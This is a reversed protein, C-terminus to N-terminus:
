RPRACTFKKSVFHQFFSLKLRPDYYEIWNTTKGSVIKSRAVRAVWFSKWDPEEFQTIKTFRNFFYEEFGKRPCMPDVMKSWEAWELREEVVQSRRVVSFPPGNSEYVGGPYRENQFHNYNDTVYKNTPDLSLAARYIQEARDYQKFICQHLLAYNLLSLPNKADVLMAWRFYIETASQIMTQNPDSVNADHFLRCATQFSTVHPSQCSALLFIGYARAILPHNPSQKVAKEYIPKAAAFDKDLCHCVMAYNVLNSLKDPADAYKTRAGHIFNMAKVIDPFEIKKGLLDSEHKSRYRRQVLRAADEESLWSSQGTGYNVYYTQGDETEEARWEDVPDHVDDDRLLKPKAWQREDTHVNRYAYTNSERVFIKEYQHFTAEKASQLSRLRRWQAQVKIVLMIVREEEAEFQLLLQMDSNNPNRRIVVRKVLWEILKPQLDLKLLHLNEEKSPPTDILWELLKSIPLKTRMRARTSPQYTCFVIDHPSRFISLIFMEDAARLAIKKVLLGKEVINRRSFLFIPRGRVVRLILRKPLAQLACPKLMEDWSLYGPSSLAKELCERIAAEELNFAFTEKTSPVYVKLLMSVDERFSTEDRFHLTVNVITADIRIVERYVISCRERQRKERLKDRLAAIARREDEIRRKQHCLFRSRWFFRRWSTQVIAACKSQLRYDEDDRIAKLIRAVLVHALFQRINKAIVIAARKATLYKAIQIDKRVLAAIRMQACVRKAEVNIAMIKAERWMMSNVDPIMVVSSWVVKALAEEIPLSPHQISAIDEFIAHFRSLDLKRYNNHRVFAMDIEHKANKISSLFRMQRSLKAWKVNDILTGKPHWRCVAHFAEDIVTSLPVGEFYNVRQQHVCQRLPYPLDKCSREVMELSVRVRFHKDHNNSGANDNTWPVSGDDYARRWEPRSDKGQPVLKWLKAERVHLPSRFSSQMDSAVDHHSVYEESVTENKSPSGYEKRYPYCLRNITDDRTQKAKAELRAHCYASSLTFAVRGDSHIMPPESIKWDMSEHADYIRVVDGQTLTNAVDLGGGGNIYVTPSGEILDVTIAIPIPVLHSSGSSSCSAKSNFNIPEKAVDETQVAVNRCNDENEKNIDCPSPSKVVSARVNLEKTKIVRRQNDAELEAIVKDASVSINSAFVIEGHRKVVTRLWMSLYVIENSTDVMSDPDMKEHMVFAYVIKIMNPDHRQLPNFSRARRVLGNLPLRCIKLVITKTLFILNDTIDEDVCNLLLQACCVAVVTTAPPDVMNACATLDGVNLEPPYFRASNMADRRNTYISDGRNNESVSLANRSAAVERHYEDLLIVFAAQQVRHINVDKWPLNVVSATGRFVIDDIGIPLLFPNRHYVTSSGLFSFAEPIDRIFDLDSLMKKLYNDGNWVFINFPCREGIIQNRTTVPDDDATTSLVHHEINKRRYWEHQKSQNWATTAEVVALSSNHIGYLLRQIRNGRALSSERHLKELRDILSERNHINHLVDDTLADCYVGQSNM